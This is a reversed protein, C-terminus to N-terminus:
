PTTIIDYLGERLGDGDNTCTMPSSVYAPCRNLNVDDRGGTNTVPPPELVEYDHASATNNM